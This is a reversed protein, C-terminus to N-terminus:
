IALKSHLLVWKEKGFLISESWSVASSTPPYWGGSPKRGSRSRPMKPPSLPWWSACCPSFPRWPRSNPPLYIWSSRRKRSPLSSTFLLLFISSRTDIVVPQARDRHRCKIAPWRAPDRNDGGPDSRTEWRKFWWDGLCRERGPSSRRRPCRRPGAAPQYPHTCVCPPGIHGSVKTTDQGPALIREVQSWIPLLSDTMSLIDSPKSIDKLYYTLHYM